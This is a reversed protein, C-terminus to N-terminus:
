DLEPPTAVVKILSYWRALNAIDDDSLGSAIISMQHHKRKGSRFAQLQARIYVANEGALNPSNANVAIGDSGHCIACPKAKLRGAIADQSFAITPQWIALFLVCALIFWGASISKNKM